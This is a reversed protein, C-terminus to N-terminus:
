AARRSLARKVTLVASVVWQPVGVEKAMSRLYRVHAEYVTQSAFQEESAAWKEIQYIAQAVLQDHSPLRRAFALEAMGCLVEVHARRGDRYREGLAALRAHMAEHVLTLAISESTTDASAVYSETLVCRRTRSNWYALRHGEMGFVLVGHVLQRLATVGGTYFQDILALATDLQAFGRDPHAPGRWVATRM